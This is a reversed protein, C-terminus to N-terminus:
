FCDFKSLSGYRNTSIGCHAMVAALHTVQQWLFLATFFLCWQVESTTRKKHCCTVFRAATIACQPIEVLLYTLKDFNSKNEFEKHIQTIQPFYTDRIHETIIEVPCLWFLVPWGEYGPEERPKKRPKPSELSNKRAM